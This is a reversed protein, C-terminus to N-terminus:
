ECEGSGAYKRFVSKPITWTTHTSRGCACRGDVETWLRVEVTFDDGEPRIRALRIECGTDHVAEARITTRGNRALEAMGSRFVLSEIPHALETVCGDDDVEYLMYSVTSGAAFIGNLSRCSPDPDRQVWGYLLEFDRGLEGLDGFRSAQDVTVDENGNTCPSGSSGVLGAKLSELYEVIRWFQQERAETIAESLVPEGIDAGRQVLLKLTELRGADAEENYFEPAPRYSRLGGGVAWFVPTRNCRDRIDVDAGLRVLLEAAEYHGFVAALCL